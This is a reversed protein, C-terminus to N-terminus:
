SRAMRTPTMRGWRSTVGSSGRSSSRPRALVAPRVHNDAAHQLLPLLDVDRGVDARALDLLELRETSAWSASTTTKSLSRPGAWVRLRSFCSPTLTTSRVSTIRSMKAVWARVCSAWRWTSSACSSYAMGRSLRIHVWRDRYLPPM